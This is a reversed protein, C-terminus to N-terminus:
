AQGQDGDQTVQADKAYFQVDKVADKGFIYFDLDSYKQWLTYLFGAETNARVEVTRAKVEVVEKKLKAVELQAKDAQRIILEKEKKAEELKKEREEM